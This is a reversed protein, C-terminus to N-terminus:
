EWDTEWDTWSDGQRWLHCQQGEPTWAAVEVEWGRSLATLPGVVEGPILDVDDVPHVSGYSNEAWRRVWVQGRGQVGFLLEQGEASVAALFDANDDELRHVRSWGEGALWWRHLVSSSRDTWFLEMHGPGRSCSTASIVDSFQVGSLSALRAGVERIWRDRYRGWTLAETSFHIARGIEDHLEDLTSPQDLRRVMM